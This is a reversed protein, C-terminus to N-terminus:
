AEETESEAIQETAAREFKKGMWYYILSTIGLLMQADEIYPNYNFQEDDKNYTHAAILSSLGYIEDIIKFIHDLTNQSIEKTGTGSKEILFQKYVEIYDYNKYSKAPPNTNHPLRHLIEAPKRRISMACKLHDRNQNYEDSCMKLSEIGDELRSKMEELKEDYEGDIIDPFRYPIEIIFREGMGLPRIVKEAWEDRHITLKCDECKTGDYTITIPKRDISPSGYGDESYMTMSQASHRRPRDPMLYPILFMEEICLYVELDNGDRISEIRNYTKPTLPFYFELCKDKSHSIYNKCPACSIEIPDDFSRRRFFIISKNYLIRRSDQSELEMKLVFNKYIMGEKPEEIRWEKPTRGIEFIPNSPIMIDIHYSPNYFIIRQRPRKILCPEAYYAM